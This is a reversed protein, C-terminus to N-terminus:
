RVHQRENVALRLGFELCRHVVTAEDVRSDLLSRVADTTRGVQVPTVRLVELLDDVQDDLQGRQFPGNDDVGAVQVVNGLVVITVDTTEHVLDDLVVRVFVWRLDIVPVADEGALLDVVVGLHQRGVEISLDGLTLVEVRHFLLAHM